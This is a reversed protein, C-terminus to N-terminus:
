LPKVTGISDGVGSQVAACSPSSTQGKVVSSSSSLQPPLSPSLSSSLSPTHPLITATNDCVVPSELAIINSSRVPESRHLSSVIKRAMVVCLTPLAINIIYVTNVVFEKCEETIYDFITLAARSTFSCISSCYTAKVAKSDADGDGGTHTPAHTHLVSELSCILDVLLSTRHLIAARPGSLLPM